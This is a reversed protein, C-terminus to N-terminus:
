FIESFNRIFTEEKLRRRWDTGCGSGFRSSFAWLLPPHNGPQRSRSLRSNEGLEGRCRGLKQLHYAEVLAPHVVQFLELLHNILIISTRAVHLREKGIQHLKGLFELNLIFTRDRPLSQPHHVSTRSNPLNPKQWCDPFLRFYFTAAVLAVQRHFGTQAFCVSILDFKHLSRRFM